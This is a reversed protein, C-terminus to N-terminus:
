IMYHFKSPDLHHYLNWYEESCLNERVDQSRHPPMYPPGSIEFVTLLRHRIEASLPGGDLEYNVPAEDLTFPPYNPIDQEVLGLRDAVPVWVSEEADQFKELEKDM